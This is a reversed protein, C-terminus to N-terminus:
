YLWFARCHQSASMACKLLLVTQPKFNAIECERQTLVKPSTKQKFWLCFVQLHVKQLHTM